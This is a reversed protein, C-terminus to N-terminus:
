WINLLFGGNINCVGFMKSVNKYTVYRGNKYIIKVIRM